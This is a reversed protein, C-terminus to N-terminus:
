LVAVADEDHHLVAVGRRSALLEHRRADGPAAALRGAHIHLGRQAAHAHFPQAFHAGVRDGGHHRRELLRHEGSLVAELHDDRIALALERALAPDPGRIGFPELAALAHHARTVADVFLDAGAVM